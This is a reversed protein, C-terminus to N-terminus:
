QVTLPVSGCARPKDTTCAEVSVDGAKHATVLGDAAITARELPTISWEWMVGARPPVLIARMRVTDGIAVFAGDPGIAVHKEPPGFGSDGEADPSACAAVLLLVGSPVLARRM